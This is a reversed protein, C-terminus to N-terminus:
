EQIKFKIPLFYKVNVADKGIKGPTMRSFKRVVRRTEKELAPHPARVKVDNISGDKSVQFQVHIRQIGKLGYEAGLDTNFKYSVIKKIKSSLCAIREDNSSLGECGPYIPAVTVKSIDYTINETEVIDLISDVPVSKAKGKKSIAGLEKTLKDVVSKEEVKKLEVLVQKKVKRVEVLQKEIKPKEVRFVDMTFSVDEINDVEEDPPAIVSISTYTEFMVFTFLLSAILGIQFNVLTSKRVNADHKNSM